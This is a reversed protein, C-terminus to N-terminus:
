RSRALKVGLTAAGDSGNVRVRTLAFPEKPVAFGEVTTTAGLYGAKRVEAIVTANYRGSPYCFFNVPVGFLRQLRARSGAVERRLDRGSLLTLDSHTLSHADLEWGVALLKQVWPVVPGGVGDLHSVALNMTGVWGHRRLIPYARTYWNRFGDDFSIVVPKSPLPMGGHWHDWVQQLTVVQYRHRALYEVHEAFRSPTVFLEPYPADVPARAIVHYMLIPVPTTRTVRAGARVATEREGKRGHAPEREAGSGLAAGTGRAAPLHNPRADGSGLYHSDFTVAAPASSLTTVASDLPPAEDAEVPSDSCAALGAMLAVTVATVGLRALRRRSCITVEM